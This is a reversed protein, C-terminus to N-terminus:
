KKLYQMPDDLSLRTATNRRELSLPLRLPRSLYLSSLKQRLLTGLSICAAIDTLGSYESQSPPSPDEQIERRICEREERDEVTSTV